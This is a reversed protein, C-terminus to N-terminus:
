EKHKAKIKDQVLNMLPGEARWTWCTDVVMRAMASIFRASGPSEQMKDAGYTQITPAGMAALLEALHTCGKGCRGALARAKAKFGNTIRLGKFSVMSNITELCEEHPVCPMEVHLNEIELNAKKVLLHIIMKHVNGPAQKDGTLLYFDQWRHDTLCGEVAYRQDDYEYATVEITRTHYKKGKPQGFLSM